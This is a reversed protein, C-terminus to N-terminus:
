LHEEQKTSVGLRSSEAARDEVKAPEKRTYATVWQCWSIMNKIAKNLIRQGQFLPCLVEKEKSNGAILKKRKRGNEENEVFCRIKNWNLGSYLDM